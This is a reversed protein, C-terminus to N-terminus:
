RSNEDFFLGFLIIRVVQLVSKGLKFTTLNVVECEWNPM